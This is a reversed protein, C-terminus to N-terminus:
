TAPRSDLIEMPTLEGNLYYTPINEATLVLDKAGKMQCFAIRDAEGIFKNNNANVVLHEFTTTSGPTPRFRALGRVEYELDPAPTGIINDNINITAKADDFFSFQFSNHTYNEFQNGNFNYTAGEQAIYCSFRDDRACDNTLYNNVLGSGDYLLQGANIMNYTDTKGFFCNQILLKYGAGKRSQAINGILTNTETSGLKINYFRCNKFTVSNAATIEITADETFDIGDFVVDEGPANITIPKTFKTSM